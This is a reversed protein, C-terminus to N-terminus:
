RRPLWRPVAHRYEDYSAGFREHLLHEEFPIGAGHMGAVYVVTAGAVPVSGLLISWGTLVLAGGLYMPNRTVAYAGSRALYTPVVSLKAEDPAAEYHSAIAWGLTAAGAALPVMGLANLAGPRGKAWGRRRGRRAIALPAVVYAFTQPAAGALAHLLWHKRVRM